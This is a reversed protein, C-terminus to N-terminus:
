LVREGAQLLLDEVVFQGTQAGPAAQEFPDIPRLRAGRDQHQDSEITETRDVVRDAEVGAVSQELGDRPAQLVMDVPVDQEGTDSAVFKGNERGPRCLVFVRGESEALSQLGQEVGRERAAGVGQGQADREPDDGSRQRGMLKGLPQPLGADGKAHCFTAM